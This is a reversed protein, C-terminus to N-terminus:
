DSIIGDCFAKRPTYEYIGISKAVDKIEDLNKWFKDSHDYENVTNHALEHIFVHMVDNINGGKICVFIEYGKGVNYGVGDPSIERMVTVLGERWLEPYMNRQQLEYRIIDYRRHLEKIIDSESDYGSYRKTTFLIVLLIVIIIWKMSYAAVLFM